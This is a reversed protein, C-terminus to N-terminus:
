LYEEERRYFDEKKHIEKNYASSQLGVNLVLGMGLYLSVLSTLGYSIFPLPTGTNPAIGTAVCINLFSQFSVVTAVGCCVVKGAMDKARSSTMVCEVAIGFLLGIILLCGVFGYEEGAVAFIFDTQNEPVFNGENVSSADNGDGFRRGVLEGSAIAMKSNSQQEIDDSYEEDEPYLFSM